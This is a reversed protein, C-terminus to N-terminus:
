PEGGIARARDAGSRRRHGACWSGGPRAPLEVCGPWRCLRESAVEALDLLRPLPDSSLYTHLAAMAQEVTTPAPRRGKGIARATREPLGALEAFMATGLRAAAAVLVEGEDIEAYVPQEAGDVFLRGSKGTRRALLPDLIAVEPHEDSPPRGWEVAHARYSDVVYAGPVEPDASIEGARNTRADHFGLPSPDTIEGGHDLAVPHCDGYASIAEIVRSFPRCGLAKPMEAAADFSSLQHRELAPWDPAKAEYSLPPLLGAHKQAHARAIEGTILYRGDEGRVGFGPPPVFGGIAVETHVLVNADEDTVVYKKPGFICATGAAKVEFFPEGDGFPDLDDFLGLLDAVEDAALIRRYSGDELQLKEM